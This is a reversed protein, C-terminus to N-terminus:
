NKTDLPVCVNGLASCVGEYNSNAAHCMAQNYNKAVITDDLVDAWFKEIAQIDSAEIANLQAVKGFRIAWFSKVLAVLDHKAERQLEMEGLEGVPASLTSLIDTAAYRVTGRYAWAARPSNSDLARAEGLDIIAPSGSATICLHRPEIDGHVYHLGHLCRLGALYGKLFAEDLKGASMPSAVPQTVISAASVGVINTSTTILRLLTKAGEAENKQSAM